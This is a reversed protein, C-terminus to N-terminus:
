SSPHSDSTIFNNPHKRKQKPETLFKRQTASSRAARRAMRLRVKAYKLKKFKLGLENRNIDYIYVQLHAEPM